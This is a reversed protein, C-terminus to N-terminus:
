PTAPPTVPKINALCETLLDCESEERFCVELVRVQRSSYQEANCEDIFVETHKPATHAIDLKALEAASMSARVDAVACKTLTPGLAACAARQRRQLPSLQVTPTATTVPEIASGNKPGCGAVGLASSAVMTALLISMWAVRNMKAPCWLWAATARHLKRDTANRLANTTNMTNM